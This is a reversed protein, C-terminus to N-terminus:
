VKKFNAGTVGALVGKFGDRSHRMTEAEHALKANLAQLTARQNELKFNKGQLEEIQQDIGPASELECKLRDVMLKECDLKRTLECITSYSVRSDALLASYKNEVMMSREELEAIYDDLDDLM